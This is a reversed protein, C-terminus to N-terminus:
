KEDGTPRRYLLHGHRLENVRGERAPFFTWALGGDKSEQVAMVMARSDQPYSALFHRRYITREQRELATVWVEGPDKLTPIVYNIFEERSKKDAVHDIFTKTLLVDTAGDPTRVKNWIIDKIGDDRTYAIEEVDAAKMASLWLSERETHSKVGKLRLPAPAPTLPLRDPLGLDKWGKQGALVVDDVMDIGLSDYQTQAKGPNYNWGPDPSLVHSKGDKGKFTYATGDVNIVEGTRKDIGLEQKVQRLADGSTSVVLGMEKVEDATLAEVRCRCNFGNPPYLTRWIPDDYRFVRGNMAAHSERTHSDMVAVYMWYPRSRVNKMHQRYRGHSWASRMNTRFITKLRHPSGLQVVKAGGDPGVVIEKGWWGLKKLNPEMNRLFEAESMGKELARTMQRRVSELIDMRSAQAVTFAKAHAVNQMEWWDHTIEYGKSRFYRVARRPPLKLAHGIVAADPM